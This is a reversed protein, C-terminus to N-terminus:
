NSTKSYDLSKYKNLIIILIILSVIPLMSLFLIYYILRGNIGIINAIDIVRYTYAFTLSFFTGAIIMGVVYTLKTLAVESLIHKKDNISMFIIFFALLVVLPIFTYYIIEKSINMVIVLYM